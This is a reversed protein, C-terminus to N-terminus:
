RNNSIIVSTAIFLLVSLILACNAVVLATFHERRNFIYALFFNIFLLGAGTALMLFVERQSGTFDPEGSTDFHLIVENNPSLQRSVMLTAGGILLASVLFMALILKM